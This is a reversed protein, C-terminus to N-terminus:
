RDTRGGTLLALTRPCGKEALRYVALLLLITLLPAAFYRVLAAADSEGPLVSGMLWQLLPLLMGHAAFLLFSSKPLLPRIQLSGREVGRGAWGILAVSGAVTFARHTWVWADPRIDHTLVMGVLCPLALLTAGYRCRGFLRVFDMGRVAFLAGLTFFLLGGASLGPLDEFIAPLYLGALALVGVWGAFRVLAYVLPTLLVLVLLDRIFWLPFDIPMGGTGSDWFARLGGIGDWWASLLPAEGGAATAKPYLVALSVAIAIANWLLYPLLLSRVRRQLKRTWVERNWAELHLFFLYGSILFFSPVAVRTIGESVLIRVTDYVGGHWTVPDTGAEPHFAHIFVVAAACFFRLWEITRSTTVTVTNMVAFM